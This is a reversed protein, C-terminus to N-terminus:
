QYKCKEGFDYHIKRLDNIDNVVDLSTGDPATLDNSQDYDFSGM